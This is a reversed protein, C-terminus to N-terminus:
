PTQDYTETVYAPLGFLVGTDLAVFARQSVSPESWHLTVNGKGNTTGTADITFCDAGGQILRLVVDTNPTGGKLSVTASVTGNGPANIVAFGAGQDTGSIVGGGSCLADGNPGLLAFKGSGSGGATAIGATAVAVLAAAMLVKRM